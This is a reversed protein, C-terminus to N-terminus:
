KGKREAGFPLENELKELDNALIGKVIQLSQAKTNEGSTGLLRALDQLVPVPVSICPTM